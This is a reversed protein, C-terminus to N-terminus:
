YLQETFIEKERQKGRPTERGARIPPDTCPAAAPDRGARPAGRTYGASTAPPQPPLFSVKNTACVSSTGQLTFDKPFCPRAPHGPPLRVGGVRRCYSRSPEFFPLLRLGRGQHMPGPSGRQRRGRSGKEEGGPAKDGGGRAQLRLLLQASVQRIHNPQPRHCQQSAALLSPLPTYAAQPHAPVGRPSPQLASLLPTLLGAGDRPAARGSPEQGRLLTGPHPSGPCM